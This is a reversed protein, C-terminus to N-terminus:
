AIWGFILCLMLVFGAWGLLCLVLLLLLHFGLPFTTTSLAFTCVPTHSFTASLWFFFALQCISLPAAQAQDPGPYLWSLTLTNVPVMSDPSSFSSSPPLSPSSSSSSPHSAASSCNCHILLYFRLRCLVYSPFLCSSPKSLLFAICLCM